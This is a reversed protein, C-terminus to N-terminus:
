WIWWHSDGRTIPQREPVGVKRNRIGRHQTLLEQRSERRGGAAAAISEGKDRLGAGPDRCSESCHRQLGRSRTSAKHRRWWDCYEHRGFVRRGRLLM